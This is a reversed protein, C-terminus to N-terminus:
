SPNDTLRAYEAAAWQALVRTSPYNIEMTESGVTVTRTTLAIQIAVNLAAVDLGPAAAVEAGSRLAAAATTLADRLKLTLLSPTGAIGAKVMRRHEAKGGAHGDRILPDFTMEAQLLAYELTPVIGELAERLAPGEAGTQTPTAALAADLTAGATRVECDDPCDAHDLMSHPEWDLATALGCDCSADSPMYSACGPKHRAYERLREESGARDSTTM